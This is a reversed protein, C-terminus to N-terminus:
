FFDMMKEYNIVIIDSGSGSGSSSGSSHYCKYGSSTLTPTILITNLILNLLLILWKKIKLSIYKIKHRFKINFFVM